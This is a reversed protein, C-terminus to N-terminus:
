GEHTLSTLEESQSSALFGESGQNLIYEINRSRTANRELKKSGKKTSKRTSRGSAHSAGTEDGSNGLSDATMLTTGSLLSSRNPCEKPLATAKKSLKIKLFPAIEGEPQRETRNIKYGTVSGADSHAGKTDAEPTTISNHIIVSQALSTTMQESKSAMSRMSLTMNRAGTTHLIMSRISSTM